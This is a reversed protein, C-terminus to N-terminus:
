VVILSAEWIFESFGDLNPGQDGGHGCNWGSHVRPNVYAGVSAKLNTESFENIQFTVSVVFQPAIQAEITRRKLRLPGPLPQSVNWSNGPRWNTCHCVRVSRQVAGGEGLVNAVQWNGPHSHPGMLAVKPGAALLTM